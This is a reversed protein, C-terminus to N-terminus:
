EAATATLGLGARVAALDADAFANRNREAFNDFNARIQACVREVHAIDEPSPDPRRERREVKGGYFEFARGVLVGDFWDGKPDVQYKQAFDRLHRRRWGYRYAHFELREQNDLAAFGGAEVRGLLSQRHNESPFFLDPTMM